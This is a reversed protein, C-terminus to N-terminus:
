KKHLNQILQFLAQKQPNLFYSLFLFYDEKPLNKKQLYNNINVLRKHHVRRDRTTIILEEATLALDKLDLLLEEERVGEIQYKKALQDMEAQYFTALIFGYGMLVETFRLLDDSDSIFLNNVKSSFRDKFIAFPKM